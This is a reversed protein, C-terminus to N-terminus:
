IMNNRFQNAAMARELDKQKAKESADFSYNFEGLEPREGPNFSTIDGGGMEDRTNRAADGQTGYIFKNLFNKVDKQKKSDGRKDLDTMGGTLSDVTGGLVGALGREKAVQAPTQQTDYGTIYGRAGKFGPTMQLLSPLM